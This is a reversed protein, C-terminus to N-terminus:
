KLKNTNKAPMFIIPRDSVTYLKDHSMVQVKCIVKTDIMIVSTVPLETKWYLLLNYTNTYKSAKESDTTPMHKRIAVSKLRALAALRSPGM